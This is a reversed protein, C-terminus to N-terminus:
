GRHMPPHAKASDSSDHPAQSQLNMTWEAPWLFGCDVLRRTVELCEPAIGEVDSGVSPALDALLERLPRQGNCRLILSAVYSDINGAYALGSALRLQSSVVQWREGSPECQQDWRVDPAVCLRAELLSRDQRMTALFDRLEFRRAIADGCPGLMKEPADDACFWNTGASRRRMTILGASMAEIGEREYYTMWDEYLQAFHAPNDEETGRIWVTAYTSADRTESRMVWADCGAGDFWGALREQWDQGAYHAWNCLIQCYGGERLFRPVERVIRQCFQDGHM